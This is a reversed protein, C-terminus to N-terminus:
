KSKKLTAKTLLAARAGHAQLRRGSVRTWRAAPGTCASLLAEEQAADVFDRVLWVDRLPTPLRAAECALPPARM